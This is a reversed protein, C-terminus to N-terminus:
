KMNMTLLKVSKKPNCHTVDAIRLGAIRTEISLPVSQIVQSSIRFAKDM